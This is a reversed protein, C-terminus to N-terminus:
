LKGDGSFLFKCALLGLCELLYGTLFICLTLAFLLPTKDYLSASQMQGGISQFTNSMIEASVILKLSFSLNRAGEEFIKPFVIPLFLEKIMKKKPVRYVVSMEILDADVHNLASYVSAYSLPVLVTTAVIIPAISANSWLLIILLIAMTPLSRVFSIIPAFLKEFVPFVYALLAFGAGVVFSATFAILSRAITAFFALWFEGKVLLGLAEELTQLLDPFLYENGVLLALITWALLLLLFALMTWLGKKVFPSQFVSNIKTKVREM